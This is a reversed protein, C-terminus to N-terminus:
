GTKPHSPHHTLKSDITRTKPIKPENSRGLTRVPNQVLHPPILINQGIHVDSGGVINIIQPSPRNARSYNALENQSSGAMSLASMHNPLTAVINDNLASIAEVSDEHRDVPQADNVINSSISSPEPHTVLQPNIPPKFKDASM